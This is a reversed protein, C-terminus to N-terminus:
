GELQGLLGWEKVYRRAERFPIRFVRKRGRGMSVARLHGSHIEERVFTPSMGILHAIERTTLPRRNAASPEELLRAVRIRDPPRVRINEAPAAPKSGARHKTTDMPISAQRRMSANAFSTGVLDVMEKANWSECM